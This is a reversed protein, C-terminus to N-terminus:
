IVLALEQDSLQYLQQQIEVSKKWNRYAYSSVTRGGHFEDLKFNALLKRRGGGEAGRGAVLGRQTQALIRLIDQVSDESQVTASAQSMQTGDEQTPM